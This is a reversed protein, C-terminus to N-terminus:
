PGEATPRFAVAFAVVTAPAEFPVTPSVVIRGTSAGCAVMGAIRFPIRFAVNGEIMLPARFTVIGGIRFPDKTVPISPNSLPVSGVIVAIFPVTSGLPVVICEIPTEFAVTEGICFPVPVGPVSGGPVVAITVPFPVVISGTPARFTVIGGSRFPVRTVPIRPRNFPVRGVIGAIFPVTSGGPVVAIAVPFPVVICGTPARFTVSGRSRFAVPIMPNSFPVSGVSGGNFKVRSGLPVVMRGTPAEFTVIGGSRFPVSGSEIVVIGGTFAVNSGLPVVAIVMPFPVVIRGTPDRFTVMDSFAVSGGIGESFMVRSGLPVVICDTPAVFEVTEGMRFPVMTVPVDPDSFPVSGGPVVVPFPVVICGTPAEFAVTEGIRFTVMTVPFPVVTCGTPAGFTVSGGSRFAVPIRPNSFPVSGGIGENFMVRSVLPVVIRGTPARFTVIGGSRFPVSSGIVVSSLSVVVPLVPFPVVVRGTPAEFTVIRFPVMTVPVGPGVVRRTSPENSLPVVTPLVIFGVVTFAVTGSLPVVVMTVPVGLGSLPVSGGGRGVTIGLPVIFGVIGGRFAVRGGGISEVRRGSRLEVVVFGLVVTVTGDPGRATVMAGTVMLTGFLVTVGGVSGYQEESM